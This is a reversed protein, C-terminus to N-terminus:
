LQLTQLAGITIPFFLTPSCGFALAMCFAVSFRCPARSAGRHRAPYPIVFGWGRQIAFGFNLPFYRVVGSIFALDPQIQNSGPQPCVELATHRLLCTKEVAKPRQKSHFRLCGSCGQWIKDQLWKPSLSWLVGM